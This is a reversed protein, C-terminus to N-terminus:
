FKLPGLPGESIRAGAPPKNAESVLIRVQSLKNPSYVSLPFSVSIAPLHTNM